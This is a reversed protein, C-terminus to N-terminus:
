ETGTLKIHEIGNMWIQCHSKKKKIKPNISKNALLVTRVVVLFELRLM